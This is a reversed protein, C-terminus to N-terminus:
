KQIVVIGPAGSHEPEAYFGSATKGDPRTFEIQRSM